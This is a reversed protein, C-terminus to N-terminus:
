VRVLTLFRGVQIMAVDNAGDGISLTIAGTKRKIMEVIQSKNKPTSRCCIVVSCLLSLAVFQEICEAALANKLAKGDVVLSFETARSLHESNKPMILNCM